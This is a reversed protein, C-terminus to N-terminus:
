PCIYSLGDPAKFCGVSEPMLTKPLWLVLEPFFVLCSLVVIFIGYMPITKKLADKFPVGSISSALLLSLGYPPTILGFALTIIVIVGMHIPNISGLDVLAAIIPMFIIIAPVADLFQGVVIFMLIVLFLILLPDTGAIGQIWGSVIQPAKLYAIMWGFASAGAVCIMPVAYLIGANMFDRPLNKLHDRKIIPIVILITYMVAIMGSETPTFWGSLIGGMIVFPILLPLAAGKAAVAMEVFTSRPKRIKPANFFYCYIMFGGAIMIGPIIGGLFIGGISVNGTAGYIVGMISPPIINALTSTAASLAASFAPNYGEKRMQPALIRVEASVDATSSGSMGAFFLSFLTNVQALGSRIHGVLSRTFNFIRETVNTSAMLEGALLFFPVAMLPVSDIGNYLQGVMSAMSVDTFMTGLFVSAMIAFPVPIGLIGFGMFSVGMLGIIMGASM